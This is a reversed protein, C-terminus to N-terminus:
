QPNDGLCYAARQTVPLENEARPTQVTRPFQKHTNMLRLENECGFRISQHRSNVEVRKPDTARVNLPEPDPREV